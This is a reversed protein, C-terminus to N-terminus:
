WDLNKYIELLRKAVISETYHEAVRQRGAAGMGRRLDKDELLTSVAVQLAAADRM